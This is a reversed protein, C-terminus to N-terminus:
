LYEEIVGIVRELAGRNSDVFRDAREGMGGAYERNSLLEQLIQCLAEEDKVRKGGGAEILLQSMNVFNHTHPGFLVPCGFAAPELLNHGGIPVFSGGVFSVEAIGYIRGLEGITDLILVHYPHGDNKLGTKRETKLGQSVSLRYIEEAREIERPAIILRLASFETQLRKYVTLLIEEEGQHTSGAVWIRDDARLNLLHTWQGHEKEGIPIWQRDFKINGSTIVKQPDIGIRLLRERDLDSQMLLRDFSNLMFRILLAFRRYSRFTRPSIRGNLLVSGIGRRKLLYICGPWIDTEILLFISPNIYNFMRMMSWWFDLPMTLVETVEEQLEKRAIALGQSTTVTLVINREPHQQRISRVLPIASLVEGVSLTHIWINGGQLPTSPLRLGMRAAFRRNRIFPILPFIPLFFITWLFHYLVVYLTTM